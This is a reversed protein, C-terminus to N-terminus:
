QKLMEAYKPQDAESVGLVTMAREVSLGMNKILNQISQLTGETLGETRGKQLGKKKWAAACRRRLRKGAAGM